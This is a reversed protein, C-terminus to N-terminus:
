WPWTVQTDSVVTFSPGPDTALSSTSGTSVLGVPRSMGKAVDSLWRTARDSRQLWFQFQPDEPGIKPSLLEWVVLTACALRVDKGWSSFPPSYRSSLYGEVVDSQHEIATSLQGSSIGNSDQVAVSFGLANLDTQDCYLAM